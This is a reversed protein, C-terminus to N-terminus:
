DSAAAEFRGRRSGAGGRPTASVIPPAADAKGLCCKKFKKGSGCPCPNNRGVHRWPNRDSSDQRAAEAAREVLQAARRARARQYDESFAHWRSLTDITGTFPMLRKEMLGAMREPDDLTVKLDLEFDDYHMTFEPIFGRDFLGQVDPAFDAFGLAAACETWGVWVYCEGQPQM